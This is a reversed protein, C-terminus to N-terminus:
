FGVEGAAVLAELVCDVAVGTWVPRIVEGNYGTIGGKARGLELGVAQLIGARGRPDPKARTSGDM